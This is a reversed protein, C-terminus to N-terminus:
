CKNTVDRDAAADIALIAGPSTSRLMVEGCYGNSNSEESNPQSSQWKM